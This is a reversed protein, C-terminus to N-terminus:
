GPTASRGRPGDGLGGTVELRGGGPGGMVGLQCAVGAAGGGINDPAAAGHSAAGRGIDDIAAAGGGVDDHSAAGGAVFEHLEHSVAGGAMIAGSKAMSKSATKLKKRPQGLGQGMGLLQLLGDPAGAGASDGWANDFCSRDM